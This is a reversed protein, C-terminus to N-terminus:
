SVFFDQAGRFVGWFPKNQTKGAYCYVERVKLILPVNITLFLVSDFSLFNKKRTELGAYMYNWMRNERIVTEKRLRWVSNFFLNQKLM